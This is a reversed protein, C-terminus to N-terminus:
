RENFSTASYSGCGCSLRLQSASPTPLLRKVTRVCPQVVPHTPDVREGVRNFRAFSPLILSALCRHLCHSVLPSLIRMAFKIFLLTPKGFHLRTAFHLEVDSPSRILAHCVQSSLFLLDHHRIHSLAQSPPYNVHTYLFCHRVYTTTM